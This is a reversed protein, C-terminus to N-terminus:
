YIFMAANESWQKNCTLLESSPFHRTGLYRSKLFSGPVTTFICNKAKRSPISGGIGRLPEIGLRFALFQMKAVPGPQTKLHSLVTKRTKRMEHKM